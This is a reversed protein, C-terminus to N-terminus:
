GLSISDGDVELAVEALPQLNASGGSPGTVNSGDVISFQSGHCDCDITETVKLIPCGQHTCVNSFGKFTGAQPQTVIVKEDAFVAGGGVPIVDTTTLSTAPGSAGAGPSGSGTPSSSAASTSPVSTADGGGCAALLPVGLGATAAGAVAQRRNIRTM